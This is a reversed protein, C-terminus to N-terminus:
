RTAEKTTFYRQHLDEVVRTPTIGPPYVANFGMEIYKREIEEWPREELLLYGGILLIINGLGAENCKERFGNAMSEAHGSFSSLLIADAKTEVAAEIFEEQSVQAGLSVVKFGEDSL